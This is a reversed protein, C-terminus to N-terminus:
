RVHRNRARRKLQEWSLGTEPHKELRASRRDLEKIQAATLPPFEAKDDAISDWLGEVLRLREVVPLAKLQELIASM